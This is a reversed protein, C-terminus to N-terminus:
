KMRKVSTLKVPQIDFNEVVMSKRFKDYGLQAAVLAQGDGEGNPKLRLEILTIPYEISRPQTAAEWFAIDRDALITIREIGDPGKETWAFNAPHGLMGSGGFRAVRPLKRLASLVSKTGGEIVAATIQDREAQTSWREVVIDVPSVPPGIASPIALATFREPKRTGQAALSVSLGALVVALVARKM